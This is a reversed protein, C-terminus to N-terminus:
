AIKIWIGNLVVTQDRHARLEEEGVVVGAEIQNHDILDIVLALALNHGLQNKRYRDCLLDQRAVQWIQFRQEDIASLRENHEDRLVADLYRLEALRLEYGPLLENVLFHQDIELDAM